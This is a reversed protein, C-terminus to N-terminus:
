NAGIGLGLTLIVVLTFTPNRVLTRATLHLDQRVDNLWTFSRVERYVEKTQSVGGFSRLAAIRAGEPSLGQQIYEETAEALHSAIEDNIEHDMQRSRLLARLRFLLIRLPTM